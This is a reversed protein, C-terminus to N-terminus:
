NAGNGFIRLITQMIILMDGKFNHTRAYELDSALREGATASSRYRVQSLGTIGPRISCRTKWDDQSYDNVQMPTDPRPGVISMDGRLVNILQPLEDLSTRRLFRGILTIRPDNRSTSHGGIKEADKRMTRFKLIEFTSGDLGCREQRFLSPFGDSM